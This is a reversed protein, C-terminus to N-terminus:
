YRVLWYQLLRGSDLQLNGCIQVNNLYADSKFFNSNYLYWKWYCTYCYDRKYRSV